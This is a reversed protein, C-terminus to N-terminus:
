FPKPWAGVPMSIGLLKVFTLWFLLAGGASIAALQPSPRLGAYWAAAFILVAISLPYGAIPMVAVYGIGIALMGAAHLHPHVGDSAPAAPARRLLTGVVHLGGLIALAMALLRPVGDAGVEDSLLSTPLAAAAAWYAAALAIAGLGLTLDRTV